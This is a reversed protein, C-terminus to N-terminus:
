QCPKGKKLFSSFQNYWKELWGYGIGPIKAFEVKTQPQHITVLQLAQNTLIFNPDLQHKQSLQSRYAHLKNKLNKEQPSLKIKHNQCHDCQNCSADQQGFYNLIFRQRCNQSTAYQTMAQLQKLQHQHRPHQPDPHTQTIFTKQLNLNQPNFLLHCQAPQGDRGARGAEQYYNELNGPVHYHIVWRVNPKDVGMGFANTAVIIQLQNKLFQDQIKSRAEAKLGGHYAAAPWTEGWYHKILRALYDAKKRTSTYIIGAKNQTKVTLQKLLKFLVLEQQFNSHCTTVYFSLNDRKFSNLFVQPKKLNLQRCIDTRVQKTATATFAAVTPRQSFLQTLQDIFHNIKTYSPRFDHGWMSICHAEDVAIFDIKGKSKKLEQCAKLFSPNALREPALYVFEYKGQQFKQLRIKFEKRELSSNLFTAKIKRQHLADVQDKMLSILPSIVLTTGPLILGPIQFCLSKGGGTPLIALADQRKLITQIIPLQGKRFTPYGFYKQLYVQPTQQSM